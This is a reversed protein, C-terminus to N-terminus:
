KKEPSDYYRLIEAIQEKSARPVKIKSRHVIASMEKERDGFIKMLSNKSTIKVWTDGSLVYKEPSYGYKDRGEKNYLTSRHRILFTSKGDYAVEYFGDKMRGASEAPFKLYRFRITDYDFYLDFGKINDRNLAIRALQGNVTRTNDTYIVEDLYTDYQLTLNRIEMNRFFLTATRNRNFFLLPNTGSQWYYPLYEKGNILENPATVSSYYIKELYRNQLMFLDATSLDKDNSSSTTKLSGATQASIQISGILFLFIVASKIM